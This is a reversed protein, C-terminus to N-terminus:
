LLGNQSSRSRAQGLARESKIVADGARAVEAAEEKSWKGRLGLRNLHESM